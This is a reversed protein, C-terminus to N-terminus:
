KKQGEPSIKGGSRQDSIQTTKTTVNKTTIQPLHINEAIPTYLKLGKADLSKQSQTPLIL